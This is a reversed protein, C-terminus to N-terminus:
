EIDNESKIAEMEEHTLGYPIGGSTYGMIMAFNADSEFDSIAHLEDEHKKKMSLRHQKLSEALRRLQTEYAEPIEVGLIRLENVACLKDVGYQKAYGKVINKGSYSKIWDKVSRLRYASSPTKKM